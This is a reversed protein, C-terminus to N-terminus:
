GDEVVARMGGDAGDLGALDVPLADERAYLPEVGAADRWGQALGSGADRQLGQFRRALGSNRYAVVEVVAALQPRGVLGLGDLFRQHLVHVHEDGGLFVRAHDELDLGRALSVRPTKRLDGGSRILFHRPPELLFEM